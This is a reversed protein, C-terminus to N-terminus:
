LFLINNACYIINEFIYKFSKTSCLNLTINTFAVIFFVLFIIYVSNIQPNIVSMEIRIINILQIICRINHKLCFQLNRYLKMFLTISTFQCLLYFTTEMTHSSYMRHKCLKLVWYYLLLQYYFIKENLYYLYLWVYIIAKSM